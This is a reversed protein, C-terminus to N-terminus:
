LYIIGQMFWSKKVKNIINETGQHKQGSLIFTFGQYTYQEMIEIEQGQFYFRFKWINARQKDFIM